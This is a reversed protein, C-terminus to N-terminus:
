ITVRQNKNSKISVSFRNVTGEQPRSSVISHQGGRCRPSTAPEMLVHVAHRHDPRWGSTSALDNIEVLAAARHPWKRDPQSAWDAAPVEQGALGGSSNGGIGGGRNHPCPQPRRKSPSCRKEKIGALRRPKLMFLRSM